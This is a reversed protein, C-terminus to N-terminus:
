CWSWWRWYCCCAQALVAARPDPTTMLGVLKGIFLPIVTDLLAVTAGFIFMAVYLRPSERRLATYFPMRGPPPGHAPGGGAARGTANPLRSEFYSFWSMRLKVLHLPLQRGAGVPARCKREAADRRTQPLLEVGTLARSRRASCSDHFRCCTACVACHHSPSRLKRARAPRTSDCRRFQNRREGRPSAHRPAYYVAPSTTVPIRAPEHLEDATRQVLQM